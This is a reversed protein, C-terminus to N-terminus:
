HYCSALVGMFIVVVRQLHHCQPLHNQVQARTLLIMKNDNEGPEYLDEDSCFDYDALTETIQDKLKSRL